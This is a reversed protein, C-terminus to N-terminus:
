SVLGMRQMKFRSMRKPAAGDFGPEAPQMVAPHQALVAQGSCADGNGAHELITGTFAAVRGAELERDEAAAAAAAAASSASAAPQGNSTSGAAPSAAAPQRRIAPKTSNFFGKRIGSTPKAPTSDQV